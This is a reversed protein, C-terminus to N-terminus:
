PMATATNAQEVSPRGTGELFSPSACHEELAIVKM